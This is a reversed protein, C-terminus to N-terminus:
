RKFRKQTMGGAKELLNIGLCSYAIRFALKEDNREM